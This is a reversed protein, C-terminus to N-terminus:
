LGLAATLNEKKPVFIITGPIFDFVPDKLVNPNRISFVWWLSTTGYLDYSLLDPRNKYIADIMYQVDTTDAPIEPINAVDLFFGYTPTKAYPSAKNYIAAM